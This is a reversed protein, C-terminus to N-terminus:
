QSLRLAQGGRTRMLQNLTEREPADEPLALVRDALSMIRGLLHITKEDRRIELTRRREFSQPMPYSEFERLSALKNSVSESLEAITMESAAPVSEVEADQASAASACFAFVWVFAMSALLSRMVRPSSATVRGGSMLEPQM